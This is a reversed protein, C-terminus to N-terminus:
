AGRLLAALADPAPLPHLDPFAGDRRLLAYGHVLSWLAIARSFVEPDDPSSRYSSATQELLVSFCAQAAALLAVDSDVPCTGFMLRALAPNGEVFAVYAAGSASLRARASEGPADRLGAALEIFGETALAALLAGRDAFHRYPANPSVGAARAVERLSLGEPGREALQQRAAVLLAHKLDKHHYAM